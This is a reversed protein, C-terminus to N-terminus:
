VNGLARCVRHRVRFLALAWPRLWFWRYVLSGAVINGFRNVNKKVTFSRGRCPSRVVGAGSAGGKRTRKHRYLRLAFIGGERSRLSTDSMCSKTPANRPSFSFKNLLRTSVLSALARHNKNTSDIGGDRTSALQRSLDIKRINAKASPPLHRVPKWNKDLRRGAAQTNAFPACEDVNRRVCRKITEVYGRPLSRPDYAVFVDATEDPLIVPFALSAFTVDAM